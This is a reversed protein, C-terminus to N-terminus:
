KPVPHPELGDFPDVSVGVLPWRLDIGEGAAREKVFAMSVDLHDLLFPPAVLPEDLGRTFDDWHIPVVRRAGVATVTERWYADRYADDRTGLLGVGLFVVDAHRGALAGDAWGASSQVLVSRARREVLISYSGGDLYSMARAPPVLPATLEGMAKGHPFHKSPIMTVALDGFQLEETGKVIHIQEEPLHLGRAIWATSMSGVLLAKTKKAVVPADMAHDYHSHATIVADLGKVGAMALGADIRAEDPAIRGLAVSAVSPRTFFGDILVSATSDEFILTSVGLFTVHIGGQDAPSAPLALSAYQDVSPRQGLAHRLWLTGGGLALLLVVGVGLLFRKM